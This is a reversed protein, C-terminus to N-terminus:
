ATAGLMDYNQESISLGRNIDDNWPVSDDTWFEEPRMVISERPREPRIKKLKGIDERAVIARARSTKPAPKLRIRNTSPLNEALSSDASKLSDNVISNSSCDDYFYNDIHSNHPNTMYTVFSSRLLRVNDYASDPLFDQSHKDNQKDKKEMLKIDLVPAVSMSDCYDDSPQDYLDHEIIFDLLKSVREFPCAPAKEMFKNFKERKIQRTSLRIIETFAAEAMPKNDKEKWEALRKRLKKYGAYARNVRVYLMINTVLTFVLILVLIIVGVAIVEREM